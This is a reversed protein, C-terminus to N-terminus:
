HLFCILVHREGRLSMHSREEQVGLMQPGQLNSERGKLIREGTSIILSQHSRERGRQCWNGLLSRRSHSDFYTQDKLWLAFCCISHSAPLPCSDDLPAPVLTCSYTAFQRRRLSISLVSNYKETAGFHKPKVTLSLDTHGLEVCLFLLQWRLESPLYSRVFIQLSNVSLNAIFQICPICFLFFCFLFRSSTKKSLPFLYAHSLHLLVSFFVLSSWRSNPPSLTM